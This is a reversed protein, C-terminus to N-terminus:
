MLVIKSKCLGETKESKIRPKEEKIEEKYIFTNNKEKNYKDSMSSKKRHYKTLVRIQPICVPSANPHNLEIIFKRGDMKLKKLIKHSSFMNLRFFTKVLGRSSDIRMEDHREEFVKKKVRVKELEKNKRKVACDIEAIDIMRGEDDAYQIKEGNAFLFCSHVRSHFAALTSPDTILGDEDFASYYIGIRASDNNTYHVWKDGDYDSIDDTLRIDQLEIRYKILDVSSSYFSEQPSNRLTACFLIDDIGTGVSDFCVDWKAYGLHGVSLYGTEDDMHGVIRFSVAKHTTPEM